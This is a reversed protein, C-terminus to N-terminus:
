QPRQQVGFFTQASQVFKNLISLVLPTSFGLIFPLLLMLGDSLNAPARPTNGPSLGIAFREFAEFGFPLTLIVSFLMGLVVRMSVLGSSVVDVTPDVQISLANVYIFAASGLGGTTALWFIFLPVKWATDVAVYGILSGVSGLLLYIPYLLLVGTIQSLQIKAIQRESLYGMLKILRGEVADWEVATARRSEINKKKETVFELADLYGNLLYKENDVDIKIKDFLIRRQVNYLLRLSSRFKPDYLIMGGDYKNTAGTKTKQSTEESTSSRAESAAAAATPGLYGSFAERSKKQAV